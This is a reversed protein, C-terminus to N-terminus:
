QGLEAVPGRGSWEGWSGVYNAVREGGMLEMVFAVLAARGGSRCYSVAPAKPDFGAEDLIAQLEDASRLKGSSPDVFRVWEAHKATPIVGGAVERDSRTDILCCNPPVGQAVALVQAYTALRQPQPEAVFPAASEAPRLGGNAELERLDAPSANLIRVDGVGFHKLIWWARAANTTVGNDFVVVAAQPNSVVAGIRKSWADAGEGAAFAAKWEGVNVRAASQIHADGPTQRARVDILQVGAKPFERSEGSAHRELLAVDALLEPRAYEIALASSGTALLLPLSLWLGRLMSVGLTGNSNRILEVQLRRSRPGGERNAM